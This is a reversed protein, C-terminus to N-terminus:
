VALKVNNDAHEARFIRAIKQSREHGVDSPHAADHYGAAVM